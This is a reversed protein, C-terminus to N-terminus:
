IIGTVNFDYKKGISEESKKLFLFFCKSQWTVVTQIFGCPLAVFNDSEQKTKKNM